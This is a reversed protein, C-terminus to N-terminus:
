PPGFGDEASDFDLAPAASASASASLCALIQEFHEFELHVELLILVFGAPAHGGLLHVAFDVLGELLELFQCPPLFLEGLLGASLGRRGKRLSPLLLDQAALGLFQFPLELLQLATLGRLLLAGLLTGLM